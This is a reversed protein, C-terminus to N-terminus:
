QEKLHKIIDPISEFDSFKNLFYDAGISLSLEKRENTDENTLIIIKKLPYNNEKILRLLELGSKDPLNIDLIALDFTHKELLAKGEEYNRGVLVVGIEALDNLLLILRDLIVKSDDVILVVFGQNM